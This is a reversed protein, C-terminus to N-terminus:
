DLDKERINELIQIKSELISYLSRYEGQRNYEFDVNTNV